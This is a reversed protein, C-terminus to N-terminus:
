FRVVIRWLRRCVECEAGRLKGLRLRSCSSTSRTAMRAFVAGHLGMRMEWFGLGFRDGALRADTAWRRKCTGLQWGLQLGMTSLGFQNINCRTVEQLAM